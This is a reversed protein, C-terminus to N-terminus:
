RSQGGKLPIFKPDDQHYREWSLFDYYGCHSELPYTRCVSPRAEYVGCRRTEKDLFQCTSGYINDKRHRLIREGWGIKTFRKEAEEPTINFHRALRRVDMGNVGIMAYSCCYSPCKDCDYFIRLKRSKKETPDDKTKKGSM